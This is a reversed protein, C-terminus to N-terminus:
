ALKWGADNKREEDGDYEELLEFCRDLTLFYAESFNEEIIFIFGYKTVAINYDLRGKFTGLYKGPLTLVKKKFYALGGREFTVYNKPLTVPSGNAISLIAEIFKISKQVNPILYEREINEYIGCTLIENLIFETQSYDFSEKKSKSATDRGISMTKNLFITSKTTNFINEPQLAAIVEVDLNRYESFYADNSPIYKCVISNMFENNYEMPDEDRYDIGLLQLMDLWRRCLNFEMPYSGPYIFINMANKYITYKNDDGHSFQRKYTGDSKIYHTAYNSFDQVIPNRGHKEIIDKYALAFSFLNAKAIKSCSWISKMVAPLETVIEDFEANSLDNDLERNILMKEETASDGDDDIYSITRTLKEENVVYPSTNDKKFGVCLMVLYDEVASSEIGNTILSELTTYTSTGKESLMGYTAVVNVRRPDFDRREFHKLFDSIKFRAAQTGSFQAQLVKRKGEFPSFSSEDAPGDRMVLDEIVSKSPYVLQYKTERLM